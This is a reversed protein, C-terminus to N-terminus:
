DGVIASHIFTMTLMCFVYTQLAGVFIDFFGHLFAPWIIAVPGLLVYIMTMMIIGSLLNAFLRLSLSIIPTFIGIVNMPLFFVMPQLLSKGYGSLKNFKIAAANILIVTLIALALPTSYDGTPPRLGFLGSTNCVFIFIFITGIYNRFNPAYQGMTGKTMNDLFEVVLEVINQFGSPVETAKKIARNAIIFFTILVLMVIILSIHTTTVWVTQGFLQYPFIGHVYFDIDTGGGSLITNIL